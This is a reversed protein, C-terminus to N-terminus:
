FLDRHSEKHEAPEFSYPSTRGSDSFKPKRRKWQVANPQFFQGAEFHVAVDFVTRWSKRQLSSREACGELRGGCGIGKINIAVAVSVPKKFV